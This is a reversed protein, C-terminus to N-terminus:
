TESESYMTCPVYELMDLIYAHQVYLVHYMVHCTVHISEGKWEKEQERENLYRGTCYISVMHMHM